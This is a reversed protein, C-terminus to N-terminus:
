WSSILPAPNEIEIFKEEQLVYLPLNDRLTYDTFLVGNLHDLEHLFVRARFSTLTKTFEEGNYNLARIKIKEPRWIPGWINPISLCGELMPKEANPGLTLKESADILIPNIYHAMKDEHFTIFIPLNHDVQPAALGVPTWGEGGSAKLSEEMDLIFHQIDPTIEQIPEAKQRLTKHPVTIIPMKM